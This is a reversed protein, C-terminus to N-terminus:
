CACKCVDICACLCVSVCVCVHVCMYECLSINWPTEEACSCSTSSSVALATNLEHKPRTIVTAWCCVQITAPCSTTRHSHNVFQVPASTCLCLLSELFWIPASVSVKIICMFANFKPSQNFPQAQQEHLALTSHGVCHAKHTTTLRGNNPLTSLM